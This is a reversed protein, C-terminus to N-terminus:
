DIFANPINVHALNLGCFVIGVISVITLLWTFFSGISYMVSSAKEM